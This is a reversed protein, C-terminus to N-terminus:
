ALLKYQIKRIKEKTNKILFIIFLSTFLTYKNESQNKKFRALFM